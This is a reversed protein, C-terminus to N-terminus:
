ESQEAEEAQAIKRQRANSEKRTIYGAVRNRVTKSSVNTLKEVSRKNHEFDTTFARPYTEVLEVGLQKIYQPKVGM